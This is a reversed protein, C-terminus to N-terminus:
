SGVAIVAFIILVMGSLLMYYEGGSRKQANIYITYIYKQM